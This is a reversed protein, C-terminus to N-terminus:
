VEIAEVRPLYASGRWKSAPVLRRLRSKEGL